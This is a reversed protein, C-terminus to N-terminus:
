ESAPRQACPSNLLISALNEGRANATFNTVAMMPIVGEAKAAQLAPGDDIPELTTDEKILYAFPSLYTLYQGVERVIPAAAPGLMYIYGNVGIVPREARPIVLMRGPSTIDAERINNARMLAQLSVGYRRAIAWLTDGPNVIYAVDQTPIVLAEGVVLVNPNALGNAAIMEATQVQYQNAIKWLTEGAKVVHILM